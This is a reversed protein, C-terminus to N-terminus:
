SEGRNRALFAEGGAVLGAIRKNTPAAATTALRIPLGRRQCEAVLQAQLWAGGDRKPIVLGDRVARTDLDFFWAHLDFRDLYEGLVRTCDDLMWEFVTVRQGSFIPRKSRADDGRVSTQLDSIPSRLDSLKKQSETESGLGKTQSENEFPKPKQPRGGRGGNDSQRRRFTGQKERELDLRKHHMRGDGNVVFCQKVVSHEWIKTFQRMPTRAMHALAGTDLPLSGELWCYCLLRVYIGIETNSMLVVREDTLFDKPYFQFAPVKEKAM